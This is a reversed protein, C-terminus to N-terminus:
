SLKRFLESRYTEGIPLEKEGLVIKSKQFATIKSFAVIYSRHVRIFERSPLKEEIGKLNLRTLIMKKKTHIKVYDKLGEIYM